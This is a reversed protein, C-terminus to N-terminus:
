KIFDVDGIFFGQKHCVKTVIRKLFPLRLGEVGLESQLSTLSIVDDKAKLFTALNLISRDDVVVAMGKYADIVLSKPLYKKNTFADELKEIAKEVEYNLESENLTSITSKIVKTWNKNLIILSKGGKCANNASKTLAKYTESPIYYNDLSKITKDKELMKLFDESFIRRMVLLSYGLKATLFRLFIEFNFLISSKEIIKRAEMQIKPRDIPSPLYHLNRNDRILHFSETLEELDETLENEYRYLEQQMLLKKLDDVSIIRKSSLIEIVKKRRAYPDLRPDIDVDLEEYRHLKADILKKQLRESNWLEVSIMPTTEARDYAGRSFDSTTIFIGRDAQFRNIANCFKDIEDASVKRNGLYRKVQVVVKYPKVIGPIQMYVISDVGQDKYHRTWDVQHGSKRFMERILKEMDEASYKSWNVM